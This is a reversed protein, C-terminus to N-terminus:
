ITHEQGWKVSEGTEMADLAMQVMMSAKAGTEENSIPRTDDVISQRFDLLAQLSPDNHDVEIQFGMEDNFKVTAGSVGDLVGTEKKQYGEPYFWATVYDLTIMGNKGLIRIKYDNRGNTTLSQFSARIGSSYNWIFNVNDYTERGDKWYDIGGFGSVAVPNAELVWNAIDMQHSCLEAVLGGSYEKYMRWNIQREWKPDPVDRRWNGNRNWQCNIAAIEGVYGERIMEVVHKYLRSSHYQHGVQFIVRSSRVRSVLDKTEEIGKSMTKECYVHKGADIADMAMQSHMSFPTSIIVADINKNELLQRYDEYGKAKKDAHGLGEELRFPLVDCCAIVNIEPVDKLISTLGQGRSGTGIVGINLKDNAGLIDSKAIISPAVMLGSTAIAGTEIFKRRRM